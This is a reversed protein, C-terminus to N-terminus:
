EPPPKLRDRAIVGAGPIGAGIDLWVSDASQFFSANHEQRGLTDLLYSYAILRPPRGAEVGLPLLVAEFHVARGTSSRIEGLQRMGCPHMAVAAGNKYLLDFKEKPLGEGLFRGTIDHQWREAMATGMFRVKLGEPLVEELMAYPMLQIPPRDLFTSSLPMLGVKPLSDWHMLFAKCGESQFASLLPAAIM